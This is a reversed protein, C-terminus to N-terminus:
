SAGAIRLGAEAHRRLGRPHCRLQTPPSISNHAATHLRGCMAVLRAISLASKSSARATLPSRVLFAATVFASSSNMALRRWFRM